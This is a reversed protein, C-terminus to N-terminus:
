YYTARRLVTCLCDVLRVSIIRWTGGIYDSSTCQLSALTPSAHDQNPTNAETQEPRQKHVIPQAFRHRVYGILVFLIDGFLVIALLVLSWLITRVLFDAVMAAFPTAEAPFFFESLYTLAGTSSTQRTIVIQRQSRDFTISFTVGNKTTLNFTMPTEPRQLKVRINLSASPPLAVQSGNTPQDYFSQNAATGM